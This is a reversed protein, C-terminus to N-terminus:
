LGIYNQSVLHPRRITNPFIFIRQQYGELRLYLIYILFIKFLETEDMLLYIMYFVKSSKEKREETVTTCSAIRMSPIQM